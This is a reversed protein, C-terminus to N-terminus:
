SSHLPTMWTVSILLVFKSVCCHNKINGNVGNLLLSKSKLKIFRFDLELGFITVTFLKEQKTLEETTM